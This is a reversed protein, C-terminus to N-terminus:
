VTAVLGPSRGTSRTWPSVCCMASIGIPKEFTKMLSEASPSRSRLRKSAHLPSRRRYKLWLSGNSMLMLQHQSIPGLQFPNLCVHLM